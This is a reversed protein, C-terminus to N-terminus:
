ALGAASGAVSGAVSGTPSSPRPASGANPTVIPTRSWGSRRHLAVPTGPTPTGMIAIGGAPTAYPVTQGAGGGGNRIAGPQRAGISTGHSASVLALLLAMKAKECFTFGPLVSWALAHLHEAASELSSAAPLYRPLSPLPPHNKLQAVRCRTDIGLCVLIVQTSHFGNVKALACEAEPCPSM